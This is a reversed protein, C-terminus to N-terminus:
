SEPALLTTAVSRAPSCTSGTSDKSTTSNARSVGVWVPSFLRVPASLKILGYQAFCPHQVGAKVPQM